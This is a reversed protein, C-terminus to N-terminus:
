GTAGVRRSLLSDVTVLTAVVLGMLPIVVALSVWGALLALLVLVGAAVPPCWRPLPWERWFAAHLAATVVLFVGISIAVTLAATIPSAGGHGEVTTVAVELGAGFAAM